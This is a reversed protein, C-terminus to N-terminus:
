KIDTVPLPTEGTHTPLIPYEVKPQEGTLTKLFAVISATDKSDLTIGLQTSGMIDVAQNLNWIQGSHFYPPTLAVNRLAPARFVFEDSAKKTVAFRGKDKEPLVNPRPKKAVGFPHYSNGGVNVGNHCNSCGKDMFLKLGTKETETLAESNGKLYQDFRSKPTLLTAEFTEIAKTTNDFTVPNAENPFAKRFSQVYEPISKLTNEVREPTNNMEVGAQVPGKAQAALDSARGDWFQAVNFVANLVTPANRPGKAWGHGISTEQLDGGGLALNHCTNCSILWSRSLRPDFYLWKGLEIKEPTITVGDRLTPPTDPIPKFLSQAQQMLKDDGEKALIPSIHGAGLTLALCIAIKKM